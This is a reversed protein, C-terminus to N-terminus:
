SCRSQTGSESWFIFRKVRRDYFYNIPFAFPYGDDGNVALVARKEHLLLKKADKESIMRKKRRIPRFM